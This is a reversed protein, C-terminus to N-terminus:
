PKWKYGCNACRNVTKSSGIFGTWLSFGRQGATIATSGCRPCRPQITNIYRNQKNLTSTHKTFMINLEHCNSCRIGFKSNNEEVEGRLGGCNKCEFNNILDQKNYIIDTLVKHKELCTDCTEIYESINDIFSWNDDGCKECQRGIKVGM